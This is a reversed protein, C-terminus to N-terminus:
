PNPAQINTLFPNHLMEEGISTAPGHGPFVATDPPLTLLKRTIGDMLLDYDGGPLDSRGISGNFLVDGAFVKKEEPLAIVISGPSHGPIHRFTMKVDNVTLEDGDEFFVEPVPPPEVPFGFTEGQRYAKEMLFLDSRHAATKV